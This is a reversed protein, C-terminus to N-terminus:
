PSKPQISCYVVSVIATTIITGIVSWVRVYLEPDRLLALLFITFAAVVTATMATHINM